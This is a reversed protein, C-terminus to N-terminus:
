GYSAGCDIWRGGRANWRERIYVLRSQPQPITLIRHFPPSNDHKKAKSHISICAVEGMMQLNINLSLCISRFEVLRMEVGLPM